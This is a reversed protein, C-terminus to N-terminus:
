YVTSIHSVAIGLLCSVANLVVSCAAARKLSLGAGARLLGAEALCVLIELLLYLSFAQSAPLFKRALTLLFVAPPNTALNMLLVTELKRRDRLGLIAALSLEALLTLALSRLLIPIM